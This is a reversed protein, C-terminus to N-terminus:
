VIFFFKLLSRRATYFFNNKQEYYYIVYKKLIKFSNNLVIYIYINKLQHMFYIVCYNFCKILNLISLSRLIHESLLRLINNIIKLFKNLCYKNRGDEVFNLYKMGDIIFLSSWRVVLLLLMWSLRRGTEDKNPSM